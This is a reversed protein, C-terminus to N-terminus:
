PLRQYKSTVNLWAAVAPAWFRMLQVMEEGAVSLAADEGRMPEGVIQSCVLLAALQKVQPLWARPPM